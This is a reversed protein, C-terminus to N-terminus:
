SGSQGSTEKRGSVNKAKAKHRSQAIRAELTRKQRSRENQNANLRVGQGDEQGWWLPSRVKEKRRIGSPQQDRPRHGPQSALTSYAAYYPALQDAALQAAPPPCACLIRVGGGM